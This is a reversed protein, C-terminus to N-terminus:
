AAIEGAPQSEPYVTWRDFYIDVVVINGRGHFLGKVAASIVDWLFGNCFPLSPAAVPTGYAETEREGRGACQMCGDQSVRTM